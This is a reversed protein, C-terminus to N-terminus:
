QYIYFILETVLRSIEIRVEVLSAKCIFEHGEELKRIVLDGSRGIMDEICVGPSGGGFWGKVIMTGMYGPSNVVCYDPTVQRSYSHYTMEIKDPYIYYEQGGARFTLRTEGENLECRSICIPPMLETHEAPKNERYTPAFSPPPLIEKTKTQETVKGETKKVLTGTTVIAALGQLFSRRKIKDNKM